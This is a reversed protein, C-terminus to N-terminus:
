HRGAKRRRVEPLGRPLGSVDHLATPSPGLDRIVSFSGDTELVVAGVDDLCAIGHQRVAATIEAESVRENYMADRQFHGNYFLLRPTGTFWRAAWPFQIISWSLSYQLGLLIAIAFIGDVLTVERTLVASALASGLAVTVILGYAETKSLSYKGAVRVLFLLVFYIPVGVTIIRAISDWGAFVSRTWDM